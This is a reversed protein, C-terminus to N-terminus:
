NNKHYKEMIKKIKDKGGKSINLRNEKVEIMYNIDFITLRTNNQLHAIEDLYGEIEEDIEEQIQFIYNEKERESNFDDSRSRRIFDHQRNIFENFIDMLSSFSNTVFENDLHYYMTQLNDVNNYINYFNTIDQIIKENYEQEQNESIIHFDKLDNKYYSIALHLRSLETKIPIYYLELKERLKEIEFELHEESRQELILKLDDNQLHLSYNQLEVQKRTELLTQYAAYFFLLTAIALVLTYFSTSNDPIIIKLFNNWLTELEM